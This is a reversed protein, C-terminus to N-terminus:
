RPVPVVTLKMMLNEVQSVEVKHRLKGTPADSDCYAVAGPAGDLGSGCSVSRARTGNGADWTSIYSQLQEKSMAPHIDYSVTTDEVNTVTVVPQFQNTASLVVDCRTSKGVEGVLPGDCTVSEPKEGGNSLRQSIDQQLEDALVTPPGGLNSPACGSLLSYGVAVAGLTVVVRRM